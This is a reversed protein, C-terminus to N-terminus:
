AVDCDLAPSMEHREEPRADAEFGGVAVRNRGARKAAYLAVDADALIHELPVIEAQRHVVRVGVSITVAVSARDTRIPTAAISERLSEALVRAGALGTTPAVVCFEEGGYRGLVDCRRLRAGLLRAVERLVDDGAPHGLTDNIRKFHDVDIMLFAVPQADRRALEQEARAMLAHRNLVQTLSDTMALRLIDRDSREKVMLVFSMSGVVSTALLTLYVFLQAPHVHGPAFPAELHGFGGAALGARGVLALLMLCAGAVLLRGARSDRSDPRALLARIIIAMQLGYILSLWVFRGRIDDIFLAAVAVALAIPVLCQWRPCPRRQFECVAGLALAHVAAKLGNAVVISFVDPIVGRAAILVWVATELALALGWRGIGERRRGAQPATAAVVLSAAVLLNIVILSFLLSRPDASFAIM